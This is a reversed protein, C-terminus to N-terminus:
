MRGEAAIEQEKPPTYLVGLFFGWSMHLVLNSIFPKFGMPWQQFITAGLAGAILATLSLAITWFFGFILGKLWGGNPLLKYIFPWAFILAFIISDIHHEIMWWTNSTGPFAGFLGLFGAFYRDIFYMLYGAVFGAFLLSKVNIGKVTM